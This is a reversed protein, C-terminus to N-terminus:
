GARQQMLTSCISYLQSIRLLARVDPEHPQAELPDWFFVLMDIEGSVSQAFHLVKIRSNDTGEAIKAGLQQDGGLPGSM